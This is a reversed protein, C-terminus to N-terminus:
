FQQQQDLFLYIFLFFIFLFLFFSIILLNFVCATLEITYMKCARKDDKKIADFHQM